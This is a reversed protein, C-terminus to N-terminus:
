RYGGHVKHWCKQPDREVYFGGFVFGGFFRQKVCADEQQATQLAQFSGNMGALIGVVESCPADLRLKICVLEAAGNPFAAFMEALLRPQRQVWPRQMIVDTYGTGNVATVDPIATLYVAGPPMGPAIGSAPPTASAPPPQVADPLRDWVPVNGPAVVVLNTDDQLRLIAGNRGRTGTSYIPSGNHYVVGNGDGQQVWVAGPRNQTGTAWLVKGYRTDSLVINGDGQNVFVYRGNSSTLRQGPDLRQGSGLTATVGPPPPPDPYRDWVPLNGPAVVVLNGDDQLRLIAGTRGNTGTAWVSRGDQYVVANGDGQQILVAGPRSQTGTSWVPRNAHTDILVVNGDSQNLLIYKGNPSVLRQGPGLRQDSSLTSPEAAHASRQLRPGELPGPLAPAIDPAQLGLTSFAALVALSVVRLSRPMANGDAQAAYRRVEGRYAAVM